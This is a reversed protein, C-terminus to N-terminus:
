RTTFTLVKTFESQLGYWKLPVDADSPDKAGIYSSSTVYMPHQEVRTRYSQNSAICVNM